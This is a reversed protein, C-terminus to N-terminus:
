REQFRRVLLFTHRPITISGLRQSCDNVHEEVLESKGVCTPRICGPRTCEEGLVEHKNGIAGGPARAAPLPTQRRAGAARCRPGALVCAGLSPYYAAVKNRHADRRPSRDMNTRRPFFSFFIVSCLTTRNRIEMLTSRESGAASISSKWLVGSPNQPAGAGARLAQVLARSQQAAFDFSERRRTCLM